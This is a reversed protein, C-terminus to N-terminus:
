NFIQKCISTNSLKVKDFSMYLHLNKTAFFSSFKTSALKNNNAVFKAM